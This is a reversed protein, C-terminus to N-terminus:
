AALALYQMDVLEEIVVLLRVETLRALFQKVVHVRLVTSYLHLHLCAYGAMQLSDACANM